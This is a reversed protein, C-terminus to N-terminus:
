VSFPTDVPGSGPRPQLRDMLELIRPKLREFGTGLVKGDQKVLNGDVMVTDVSGATAAAILSRVADSGPFMTLDDLRVMIIDAAKGPVLSGVKDGLGCAHAGWLTASLLLQDPTVEPLAGYYEPLANRVTIDTAMAARLTSFLDASSAVETDASMSPEGGVSLVRSTAPIGLGPMFAETGPSISFSAGAAVGMRLEEDTSKGGHILLLDSDLLGADSLQEIGPAMGFGIHMTSRLGLDRAIELDKTAVDLGTMEPGRLMAQLTVLADDDPLLETRVRRIDEPITHTPGFMWSAVNVSPFGYGFRARVGSEQLAKVAADTHAPSNQIHSEDCITTVGANLASLAGLLQSWYVDDATFQEGWRRQVTMHYAGYDWGVGTQRVAASWLHRHTDILGPLVACNTADILVAGEPPRLDVGVETIKGGEVLVDGVLSGLKPDMTLVTGGRILYRGGEGTASM